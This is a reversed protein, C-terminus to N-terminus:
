EGQEYGVRTYLRFRGNTLDKNRAMQFEERATQMAMKFLLFQSAFLDMPVAMNTRQADSQVPPTYHSRLPHLDPIQDPAGAAQNGMSNITQTMTLQSQPPLQLIQDERSQNVNNSTTEVNALGQQQVGTGVSQNVNLANVNDNYLKILLSKLYSSNVDIGIENLADKM